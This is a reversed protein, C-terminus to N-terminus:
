QQETINQIPLTITVRTGAAKGNNDHLDETVIHSGKIKHLKEIREETIALGLSPRTIMQAKLEASKERGIGDDEVVCQYMQEDRKKIQVLVTGGGPKSVIGHWISNEVFPQLIMSPVAIQDINLTPDIDMKYKLRDGMRLQELNLFYTLMQIEEDLTVSEHRSNNLIVRCLRSFQIIYHSAEKNRGQNVLSDIANLANSIFHPNMQARLAEMRSKLQRNMEENNRRQHIYGFGLLLIVLGFLGGWVMNTRKDQEERLSRQRDFNYQDNLESQTKFNRVNSKVLLELFAEASKFYVSDCQGSLLCNYKQSDYVLKIEKVNQTTKVQNWAKNLYYNASDRYINKQTINKSYYAKYSYAIGVRSLLEYDYQFRDPFITAHQYIQQFLAPSPHENYAYLLTNIYEVYAKHEGEAYRAYRFAAAARQTYYIAIATKSQLTMTNALLICIRGIRISDGSQEFLKLSKEQYIQKNEPYVISKVLELYGSVWLSDKRNNKIKPIAEEALQLASQANIADESDHAIASKLVLGKSLGTYNNNKSYIDISAIVKAIADSLFIGDNHQYELWALYYLADAVLNKNNISNARVYAENAAAFALTPNQYQYQEIIGFLYDVKKIESSYSGMVQIISDPLSSSTGAFLLIGKTLFLFILFKKLKM